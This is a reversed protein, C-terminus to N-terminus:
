FGLSLGANVVSRSQDSDYFLDEWVRCNVRIELFELQFFM